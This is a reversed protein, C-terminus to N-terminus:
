SDACSLRQRLVRSHQAHLVMRVTATAAFVQEVTNLHDPKGNGYLTFGALGTAKVTLDLDNVLCINANLDCPPDTWVLTISLRGGRAQVCYQQSDGPRDLPAYDVVQM